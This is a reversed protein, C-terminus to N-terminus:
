SFRSHIPRAAAGWTWVYTGPTAGMAALTTGSFTASGALATGSIYGWPLALLYTSFYKDVGMINGSSTSPAAFGSVVFSTPGSLDGYLICSALAGTAFFNPSFLPQCGGTSFQGLAALNATGSGDLVVNPGVQDLTLIIASEAIPIPCLALVSWGLIRSLM